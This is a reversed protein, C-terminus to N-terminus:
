NFRAKVSKQASSKVSVSGGSKSVSFNKSFAAKTARSASKSPAQGRSAIAMAAGVGSRAPKECKIEEILTKRM